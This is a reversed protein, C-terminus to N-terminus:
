FHEHKVARESSKKVIVFIIIVIIILLIVVGIVIAIIIGISLGSSQGNVPTAETITVDAKGNLVRKNLSIVVCSTRSSSIGQVSAVASDIVNCADDEQSTSWNADTSTFIVVVDLNDAGDLIPASISIITIQEKTTLTGIANIIAPGNWDTM